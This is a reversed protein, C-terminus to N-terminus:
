LRPSGLSLIPRHLLKCEQGGREEDEGGEAEGGAAAARRSTSAVELVAADVELVVALPPSPPPPARDRDLGVGAAREGERLGVTEAGAPLSVISNSLGAESPWSTTISSEPPLSTARVSTIM